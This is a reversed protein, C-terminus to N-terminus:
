LKQGPERRAQAWSPDYMPPVTVQHRVARGDREQVFEPSVSRPASGSPSPTFMGKTQEILSAPGSSPGASPSPASSPDTQGPGKPHALAADGGAHFPSIVRAQLDHLQETSASAVAGCSRISTYHRDKITVIRPAGPM